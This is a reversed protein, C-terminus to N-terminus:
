ASMGEDFFADLPKLLCYGPNGRRIRERLQVEWGQFWFVLLFCRLGSKAALTQLYKM